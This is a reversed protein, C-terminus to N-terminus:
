EYEHLPSGAPHAEAFEFGKDQEGEDVPLELTMTVTVSEMPMVSVERATVAVTTGDRM